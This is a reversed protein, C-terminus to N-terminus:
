AESDSARAGARVRGIPERIGCNGCSALTMGACPFVVVTAFGASAAALAFLLTRESLGHSRAAISVGLTLAKMVVVRMPATSM